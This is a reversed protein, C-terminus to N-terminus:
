CRQYATITSARAGWSRSEQTLMDWSPREANIIWAAEWRIKRPICLKDFSTPMSAESSVIIAGPKAALDEIVAVFMSRAYQVAHPLSYLRRVPGDPTKARCKRLNLDMSLSSSIGTTLPAFFVRTGHSSQHIAPFPQQVLVYVKCERVPANADSIICPDPM